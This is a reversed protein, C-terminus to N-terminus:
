IADPLVNKANKYANIIFRDIEVETVYLKHDTIRDETKKKIIWIMKGTAWTLKMIREWNVMESLMKRHEEKSKFELMNEMLNDRINRRRQSNGLYMRSMDDCLCTAVLHHYNKDLCIEAQKSLKSKTLDWRIMHYRCVYQIAEKEEQSLKLQKAIGEMINSWEIDHNYYTPRSEEIGFANQRTRYELTYPKGIDHFLICLNTLYDTSSSNSLCRLTHQLVDWEPHSISTHEYWWLRAVAPLIDIWNLHTRHVFFALEKGWYWAVKRIENTIREQSVWKLENLTMYEEDIIKFKFKAAFRYARLVRLSDEAIREQANGVFRIRGLKLDKQWDFPDIIGKGDWAMANITFDRRALDEEITSVFKVKDPHRSDTYAWESRFQAVEFTYGWSKIVLIWFDKNKGIDYCEFHKELIHMPINTAFDYDDSDIGLLMDRVAGWVMYAKRWENYNKSLERLQSLFYWAVSTM